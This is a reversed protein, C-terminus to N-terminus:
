ASPSQPRWRMRTLMDRVTQNPPRLIAEAKREGLDRLRSLADPSANDILLLEADEPEQEADIRVRGELDLLCLVAQTHAVQADLMLRILEGKPRFLWRWYGWGYSKGAPADSRFSTPVTTGISLVSVKSTPFERYDHRAADIAVLDPANAVLGGDVYRQGGVAVPPLYLPAAASAMVAEVLPIDACREDGGRFVFPRRTELNVAPIILEPGDLDKFTRADLHTEVVTRLRDPRHWSAHPSLFRSLTSRAPFIKPAEEAFIDALEEVPKGIAVWTAILAGVSTGAIYDFAESLPQDAPGVVLSKRFAELHCLIQVTFMGLVGGGTLSLIALRDPRSQRIKRLEKALSREAPFDV